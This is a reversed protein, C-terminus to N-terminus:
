FSYSTYFKINAEDKFSSQHTDEELNLPQYIDIGARLLSFFRSEYNFTLARTNKDLDNQLSVFYQTDEIDNLVLRVGLFLDNQYGHHSNSSRTDYSYEVINALDWNKEYIGYNTHEFGLILNTYDEINGNYDYENERYVVESKYLTDERTAQLDLGLQTIESYKPVFKGSTLVLAPDKSNGEYYSFGYDYENVYGSWRLAMGINDKSAGDAYTDNTDINLALQPRVKSTPYTNTTSPLLFFNLESTEFYKKVNVMSQGKKEGQALGTSFDKSNIIDVPNYFENKGWFIINNGVLFNLDNNTYELYAENFDINEAAEPDSFLSNIKLKGSLNNNEFFFNYKFSSTNLNNKRNDGEVDDFFISSSVEIEGYQETYIEAFSNSSILIFLIFIYRIIM